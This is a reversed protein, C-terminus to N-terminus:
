HAHRGTKASITKATAPFLLNLDNVNGRLFERSDGHVAELRGPPFRARLRDMYETYESGGPPLPLLVFRRFREVPLRNLLHTEGSEMAFVQTESLGHLEPFQVTFWEPLYYGAHRYGLFHSEFGVSLTDGPSAIRSLSNLTSLLQTEFHRVSTWSCYLPAFLFIVTNAAAVGCFLAAKTPFGLGSARGWESTKWGLLAFLPPTVVLLYGSNVFKLFVLTFFLLAPGIWVWVFTKLKQAPM